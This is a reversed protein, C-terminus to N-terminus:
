RVLFLKLVLNAIGIIFLVKWYKKVELAKPHSSYKIVLGIIIMLVPTIFSM